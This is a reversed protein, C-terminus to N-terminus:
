REPPDPSRFSLRAPPASRSGPGPGVAPGPRRGRPGQAPKVAEAQLPREILNMRPAAYRETAAAPGPLLGGDSGVQQFASGDALALTYFRGASANLLRLRVRPQDIIFTPELSGNM